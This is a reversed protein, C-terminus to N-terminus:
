AGQAPPEGGEPACWSAVSLLAADRGCPGVLQVGLPLNDAGAARPLTIAPAGLLTWVVCPGADGTGQALLPAEGLAPLTLVADYDAMEAAYEGKLGDRAALAADRDEPSMARGRAVLEKIHRSVLDPHREALPAYIEAAEACLIADAIAFAGDFSSPLEQEVVSAGRSAFAGAAAEVVQRQTASAESWFPGRVLRLRPPRRSEHQRPTGADLLGFVYSMDAVSRAFLGAHDLTPSLPRVGELSLLGHSPKFGVIGCFAAPRIVSGFTQTGIALPVLGAAVAAASGSSSGGPTRTPNWPNVTPGAQRWAFETTVTKGAVHAGLVKLRAPLAADGRPVHDRYIPSGYGTAVGATDYLDKVGVCVGALPLTEDPFTPPPEAVVTFAALAADVAEIRARCAAIEAAVTTRGGTVADRIELITEAPRRVLATAAPNASLTTNASLTMPSFGAIRAEVRLM